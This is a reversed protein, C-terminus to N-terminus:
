PISPRLHSLRYASQGARGAAIGAVLNPLSTGVSDLTLGIIVDGVGMVTALRDSLWGLALSLAALRCPACTYITSLGM